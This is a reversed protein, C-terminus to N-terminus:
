GMVSDNSKELVDREDHKLIFMELSSFITIIRLLDENRGLSYPPDAFFIQSNIIPHRREWEPAIKFFDRAMVKFDVVRLMKRSVVSKIPDKEISYLYKSGLQSRIYGFLQQWCLFICYNQKEVQQSIINFLSEKVILPRDQRLGLKEYSGVIRPYNKLPLIKGSLGLM